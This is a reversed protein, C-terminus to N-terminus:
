FWSEPVYVMDGPRLFINEFRRKELSGLPVRYSRRQGAITRFLRTDDRAAKRGFGGAMAIVQIITLGPTYNFRGPKGVEGFVYIMKSNFETINVLVSPRRKLFEKHLRTAIENRLRGATKGCIQISELLPLQITCDPHVQFTGEIQEDYVKIYIIDGVDLRFYALDFQEISSQQAGIPRSTTKQTLPSNKKTQQKPTKCALLSLFVAFLLAKTAFFSLVPTHSFCVIRQM